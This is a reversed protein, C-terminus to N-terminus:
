RDENEGLLKAGLAGPERVDATENEECPAHRRQHVSAKMTMVPWYHCLNNRNSKEEPGSGIAAALIRLTKRRATSGGSGSVATAASRITARHWM